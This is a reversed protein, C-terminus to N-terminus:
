LPYLCAKLIGSSWLLIESSGIANLVHAIPILFPPLYQPTPHSSQAQPLWLSSFFVSISLPSIGGIISRNVSYWLVLTATEPTTVTLLILYLKILFPIPM